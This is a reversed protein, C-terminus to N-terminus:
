PIDLKILVYGNGDKPGLATGVRTATSPSVATPSGSTCIGGDFEAYLPAGATVTANKLGSYLFLGHTVINVGQGSIIWNNSYAKSPKYILKEGNEDTERVEYLLMGLVTDGSTGVPVVTAPAGWRQSVTNGYAAGPAGLMASHQDSLWGSNVKVLLGATAPVGSGFTFFGHICDNEDVQRFPKLATTAQAM